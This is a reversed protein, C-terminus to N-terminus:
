AYNVGKQRCEVSLRRNKTVKWFCREARALSLNVGPTKLAGGRGGKVSNKIEPM